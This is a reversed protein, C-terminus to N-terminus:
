GAVLLNKIGVPTLCRYPNGHSEGPKYHKFRNFGKIENQQDAKIEDKATHIDIPYSSRAIEDKFTRHELWDEKTLTYDGNILRSERIGLIFFRHKKRL